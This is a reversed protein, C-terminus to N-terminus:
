PTGGMIMLWIALATRADGLATHADPHPIGLATACAELGGPDHGLHGATLTEVCRLRHSWEPAWGPVHAAILRAIRSRDFDPVAGVIVPAREGDRRGLVAALLVAATERSVAEHPRYRADHDARFMEPLREARAVDHEVFLHLGGAHGSPRRIFAAVEWIEDSDGLGTTEVDLAIISRM